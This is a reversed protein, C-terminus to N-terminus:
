IQGIILLLPAMLLKYPGTFHILRSSASTSSDPFGRRGLEELLHPMLARSANPTLGPFGAWIEM